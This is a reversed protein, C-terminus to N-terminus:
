RMSKLGGGWLINNLFCAKGEYVRHLQVGTPNIGRPIFSSGHRALYSVDRPPPAEKDLSGAYDGGDRQCQANPKRRRARGLGNVQGGRLVALGDRAVVVPGVRQGQVDRAALAGLALGYGLLGVDDQDHVGGAAHVEPHVLVLVGSGPLGSQIVGLGRCVVQHVGHHLVTVVHAHGNNGEVLIGLSDNAVGAVLALKATADVAKPGIAAGVPLGAKRCGVPEGRPIAGLLVDDEERVALRRIPVLLVGEETVAPSLNRAVTAIVLLGVEVM